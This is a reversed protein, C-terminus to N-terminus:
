NKKKCRFNHWLHLVCHFRIVVVYRVIRIIRWLYQDFLLAQTNTRRRVYHSLLWCPWMYVDTIRFVVHGHGDFRNRGGLGFKDPVLGPSVITGVQHVVPVGLGSTLALLKIYCIPHRATNTKEKRLIYFMRFIFVFILKM